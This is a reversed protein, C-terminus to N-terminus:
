IEEEMSDGLDISGERSPSRRCRKIYILESTSPPVPPDSVAPQIAMLTRRRTEFRKESNHGSTPSPIYANFALCSFM